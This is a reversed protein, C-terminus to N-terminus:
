ADKKLKAIEKESERVTFRKTGQTVVRGVIRDKDLQVVIVRNNDQRHLCIFRRRAM